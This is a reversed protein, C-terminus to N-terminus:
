GKCLPQTKKFRGRFSYEGGTGISKTRFFWSFFALDQPHYTFGALKVDFKTGSLPDGVEFLTSCDAVQGVHGWAPAKNAPPGPSGVPLPDNLVEGIEHTACNIDAVSPYMASTGADNYPCAIGTQIGSSRQYAIHFGIVCCFGFSTFEFTNYTILIPIETPTAYKDILNHTMEIFLDIPMRGARHNAGSCVGPLTRSSGEAKVHVVVAKKALRLVTHYHLGKLIEWFEARQFADGLQASGLDVGNSFLDTPVFNPGNLFRREISVSDGCAPKTPDLVSGDPYTLVVLIPRYSIYTTGDSTHPDKGAIKYGYTKGDLPSKISGTFFPITRGAARAAELQAPRV